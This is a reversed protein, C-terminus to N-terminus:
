RAEDKEFANLISLHRNRIAPTYADVMQRLLREREHRELADIILKRATEAETLALEAAVDKLKARVSTPVNLNIREM